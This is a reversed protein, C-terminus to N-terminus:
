CSIENSLLDREVVDCLISADVWRGITIDDGYEAKATITDPDDAIARRVGSILKKLYEVRVSPKQADLISHLGEAEAEIYAPSGIDYILDDRRAWYAAEIWGAEYAKSLLDRTNDGQISKLAKEIALQRELSEIEGMAKKGARLLALCFFTQAAIICILALLVVTNVKIRRIFEYLL